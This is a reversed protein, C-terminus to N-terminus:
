FYESRDWYIYLTVLKKEPACIFKDMGVHSFYHQRPSFVVFSVFVFDNGNAWTGGFYDALATHLKQTIEGQCYRTEAAEVFQRHYWYIVQVGDAGRDVTSM